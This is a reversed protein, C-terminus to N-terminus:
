SGARRSMAGRLVMDSTIRERLAELTWDIMVDLRRIEQSSVDSQERLERSRQILDVLTQLTQSVAIDGMIKAWDFPTEASSTNRKSENKRDTTPNPHM